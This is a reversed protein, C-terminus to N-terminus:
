VTLVFHCALAHLVHNNDLTIYRICVICTALSVLFVDLQWQGVSQTCHRCTRPSVPHRDPLGRHDDSHAAYGTGLMHRSSLPRSRRLGAYDVSLRCAAARCLQGSCQVVKKDHWSWSSRPAVALM